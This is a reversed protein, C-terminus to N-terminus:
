NETVGNLRIEKELDRRKGDEDYYALEYSTGTIERNPGEGTSSESVIAYSEFAGRKLLLNRSTRIFHLEPTTTYGAVM